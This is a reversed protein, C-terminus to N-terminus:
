WIKVNLSYFCKGEIQTHKHTNEQGGVREANRKTTWNDTQRDNKKETTKRLNEWSTKAYLKHHLFCWKRVNNQSLFFFCSFYPFFFIRHWCNLATPLNICNWSFCYYEFFAFFSLFQPFCNKSFNRGIVLLPFFYHLDM